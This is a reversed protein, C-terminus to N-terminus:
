PTPNTLQDLIGAEVADAEVISQLALAKQRHAAHIAGSDPASTLNSIAGGPLPGSETWRLTTHDGSPPFAIVGQIPAEAGSVVLSYAVQTDTAETLTLTRKGDAGTWSVAMGVGRDPDAGPEVVFSRDEKHLAKQLRTWGGRTGVIAAVVKPSAKVEGSYSANWSAPALFLAVLAGGICLGAAPLAWRLKANM